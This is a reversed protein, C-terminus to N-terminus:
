GVELKIENVELALAGGAGAGLYTIIAGVGPVLQTRTLRAKTGLTAIGLLVFDKWNKQGKLVANTGTWNYPDMHLTSRSYPSGWLLMANYPRLVEPFLMFLDDKLYVPSIIDKLLDPRMYLFLEDEFYSWSEDTGEHSHALYNELEIATGSADKLKGTLTTRTTVLTKGYYKIFFGKNWNMAPWNPVLDTIIVPWKGDYVDYYEDVTLGFRRDIGKTSHEYEYKKMNVRRNALLADFNMKYPMFYSSYTRKPILAAVMLIHAMFIIFAMTMIVVITTITIMLFLCKPNFTRNPKGDKSSKPDDESM